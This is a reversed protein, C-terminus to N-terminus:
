LAVLAPQCPKKQASTVTAVCGIGNEGDTVVPSDLGPPRYLRAATGDFKARVAHAIQLKDIKIEVGRQGFETEQGELGLVVETEAGEVRQRVRPRLLCCPLPPLPRVASGELLLVVM